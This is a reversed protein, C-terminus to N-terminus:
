AEVLAPAVHQVAPAPQRAISTVVWPRKDHTTTAADYLDRVREPLLARKFGTASAIIEFLVELELSQDWLSQAFLGADTTDYTGGSITTVVDGYAVRKEHQKRLLVQDLTKRYAEWEAEQRKAEHRKRAIFALTDDIGAAEIIEGDDSVILGDGLNLYDTM